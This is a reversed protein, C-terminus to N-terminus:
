PRADCGHRMAWVDGRMHDIPAYTLRHARRLKAFRCPGVNIPTGWVTVVGRKRNGMTAWNWCPDDEFVVTHTTCDRVCAGNYCASPAKQAANANDPPVVMSALTAAAVIFTLVAPAVLAGIILRTRESM